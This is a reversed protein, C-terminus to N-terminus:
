FDARMCLLLFDGRNDRPYVLYLVIDDKKWANGEIRGPDPFTVNLRAEIQPIEERDFASSEGYLNQLMGFTASYQEDSFNYANMRVVQLAGGFLMYTVRVDYGALQVPQPPAMYYVPSGGMTLWDDEPVQHIKTEAQIIQEANMGFSIGERFKLARGAAAGAHPVATLITLILILATIRGYLKMM